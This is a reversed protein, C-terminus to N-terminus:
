EAWLRDIHTIGREPTILLLSQSPKEFPFSNGKAYEDYGKLSSNIHFNNGTVHQHWHGLIAMDFRQGISSFFQQKKHVYRSIPPWIGGIGGGGKAGDGHVQWLRTEYVPVIFESSESMAISIRDDDRLSDIMWAGMVWMWSDQARLKFHVKKQSRDHNGDTITVIVKGYEDALYRLASILVPTWYAITAPLPAANTNALEDHIVGTVIDGNLAVHIADYSVGGWYTRPFSVAQDIIRELRSLAIDRDYANIGGVTDRDVVEDLHLDSLLLLPRGVKVGRKPTKATWAPVVLDQQRLKTVKGLLEEVKEARRHADSAERRLRRIENYREESVRQHHDLRRLAYDLDGEGKMRSNTM